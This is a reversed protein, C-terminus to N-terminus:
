RGVFHVTIMLAGSAGMNVVGVGVHTFDPYLINRRHGYSSMFGSFAADASRYGMSINESATLYPIGASDLQDWVWGLTPSEHEFYNNEVMDVSKERATSVLRSDVQLTNLGEAVRAENMLAVMRSEAANLFDYAPPEPTPEPAPPPTPEPEPAPDPEQDPPPPPQVPTTQDPDSYWPGDGLSANLIDQWSIPQYGGYSPASDDTGGDGGDDGEDPPLWPDGPDYPEGPNPTTDGPEAGSTANVYDRLSPFTPAYIGASVSHLPLALVLACVLVTLLTRMAHRAM